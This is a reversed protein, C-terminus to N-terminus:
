EWGDLFTRVCRGILPLHYGGEQVIATPLDMGAILSGAKAFDRLKLRFAGGSDEKLGDVGLSVILFKPDFARISDLLRV